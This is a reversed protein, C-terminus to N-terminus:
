ACNEFLLIMQIETDTGIGNGPGYGPIKWPLREGAFCNKKAEHCLKEDAYRKLYKKALPYPHGPVEPM